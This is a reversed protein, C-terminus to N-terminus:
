VVRNLIQSTPGMHGVALPPHAARTVGGSNAWIQRGKNGLDYDPQADQDSGLAYRLSRYDVIDKAIHPLSFPGGRSLQRLTSAQLTAGDSQIDSNTIWWEAMSGDFFASGASASAAGLAMNTLGTPVNVTTNFGTAIIGDASLISLMANAASIFRMVVYFWANAVLTGASITFSGNANASVSTGNQFLNFANTTTTDSITLLNKIGSVTTPKMWFGTSFPM